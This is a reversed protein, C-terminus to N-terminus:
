RAEEGEIVDEEECAHASSVSHDPRKWRFKAKEM